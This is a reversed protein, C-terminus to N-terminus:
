QSADKIIKQESIIYANGKHESKLSDNLNINGILKQHDPSFYFTMRTKSSILILLHNM